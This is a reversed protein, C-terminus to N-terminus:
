EEEKLSKEIYKVVRNKMMEKYNCDGKGVLEHLGICVAFGCIPYYPCTECRKDKIGTSNDLYLDNYYWGTNVDGLRKNPQGLMHECKYMNGEPDIAGDTFRMVGCPKVRQVIVDNDHQTNDINKLKDFYEAKFEGFEVENYCNKDFCGNTYNKVRVLRIRIKGKLGKEELLFKALDLVEHSNEKTTNICVVMDILGACNIINNVVAQYQMPTAGKAKCHNEEFGDLTLQAYKLNCYKILKECNEKTFLVGNTTIRSEFVVDKPLKSKINKGIDLLTNLELMPEGGFWNINLHKTHTTLSNIIFDVTKEATDSSMKSDVSKCGEEFCYYCKLNCNMTPAIVYSSFASSPNNIESLIDARAKQYENVKEGVLFGNDILMQLNESNQCDITLNGKYQNYDTKEMEIMAGTYSNYLVITDNSIPVEVNYISLKYM